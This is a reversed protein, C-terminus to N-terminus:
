DDLPRVKALDFWGGGFFRPSVVKVRGNEEDVETVVANDFTVEVKTGPKM